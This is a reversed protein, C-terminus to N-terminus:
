GASGVKAALERAQGTSLVSGRARASAVEDPSLQMGIIEVAHSFWPMLNQLRPVNRRARFAEVFGYLQAGDDYCRVSVAFMFWLDFYTAIRQPNSEPELHGYALELVAKASDYDRKLLRCHAIDLLEAGARTRDGIDEFIDLAEGSLMMSLDYDGELRAIEGLLGLAIALHSARGFARITPLSEEIYRRAEIVNMRLELELNGLSLQCTAVGVSDGLQEYLDQAIRYEREAGDVDRRVVRANGLYRHAAAIGAHDRVLESAELLEQARRELEVYDGADNAARVGAILEDAGALTM